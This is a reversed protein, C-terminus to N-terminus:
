RACRQQEVPVGDQIIVRREITGPCNGLYAQHAAPMNIRTIEDAVCVGLKPDFKGNSGCSPPGSRVVKPPRVPQPRYKGVIPRHHRNAYAWPNPDSYGFHRDGDRYHFSEAQAASAAFCLMLAACAAIFFSKM